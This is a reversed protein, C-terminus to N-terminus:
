LGEVTFWLFSKRGEAAKTQHQVSTVPSSVVLILPLCLSLYLRNICRLATLEFKMKGFATKQNKCLVSYFKKKEKQSLTDRTLWPQSTGDSRQSELHTSGHRASYFM